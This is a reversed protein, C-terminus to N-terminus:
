VSVTRNNIEWIEPNDAKEAFKQAEALHHCRVYHTKSALNLKPIQNNCKETALPCRAAFLCGKQALMLNPPTGPISIPNKSSGLVPVANKLGITYPHLPKTAMDDTPGFEVIQGGYMVITKQCNEVVLALDHTVLIMAFGMKKQLQKLQTFIQDQVIVDLATTPEDALVLQPSLALAM